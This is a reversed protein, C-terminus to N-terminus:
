DHGAQLLKALWTWLCGFMMFLSHIGREVVLVVEEKPTCVLKPKLVFGMSRGDLISM